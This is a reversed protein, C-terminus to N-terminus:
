QSTKIWSAHANILAAEMNDYVKKKLMDLQGMTLGVVQVEPLFIARSKGPNLSFLNEYPLRDYADLFVVPKIPTQTEIAIRFAGDYFDKLPAHTMNFTGEPAMVISINKKLVMKLTEVSQARHKADSRDVTVAAKRYIFGFVPVKSLEAKGLVRIHQKGFALLLLPIDMFSIHNFVFICAHGADHPAEYINRHRIGWAFLSAKAWFRCITYIINGGTVKGFFSAIVVFPFLAFMLLLFVAFGYISFLIRATRQIFHMFSCSYLKVARSNLMGNLRLAIYAKAFKM